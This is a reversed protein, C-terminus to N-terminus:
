KHKGILPNLQRAMIVEFASIYPKFEVDFRFVHVNIKLSPSLEKAWYALQLGHNGASQYYGLHTVLRGGVEKQVKGVYLYRSDPISMKLAPLIRDTKQKQQDQFAQIVREKNNENALEFVYICPFSNIYGETEDFQHLYSFFVRKIEEPLNNGNTKYHPLLSCDFEPILIHKYLRGRSLIKRADDIQKNLIEEIM